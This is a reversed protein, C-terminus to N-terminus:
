SLDKEMQYLAKVAVRAIKKARNLNSTALKRFTGVQRHYVQVTWRGDLRESNTITTRNWGEGAFGKVERLKVQTTNKFTVKMPAIGEV